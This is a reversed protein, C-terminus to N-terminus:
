DMKSILLKYYPQCEKLLPKLEEPFAENKKQYKMFGTSNHISAYWHNAWVGDENRAKASWTLMQKYFPINALNCLRELEKKPNNLICRSDMVVYPIDKKEFEEILFMHAKYGVDDLSPNKIVKHFSPLMEVPDRTLIINLGKKMFGRDLHLLHHTMNKFFVVESSTNMLMEEVVKEGICEMDKIVLEADPHYEKAKTNSLYYAYLPEDYVKTDPRQAFSYM